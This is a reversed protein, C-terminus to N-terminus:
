WKSSGRRTRHSATDTSSGSSILSYSAASARALNAIGRNVANLRRRLEDDGVVVNWSAGASTTTRREPRRHHQRHCPRRDTPDREPAFLWTPCCVDTEFERPRAKMSL